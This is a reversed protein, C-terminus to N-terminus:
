PQLIAEGRMEASPFVKGTVQKVPKHTQLLQHHCITAMTSINEWWEYSSCLTFITHISYLQINHMKM